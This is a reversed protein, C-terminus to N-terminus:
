DIPTKIYEQTEKSYRETLSSQVDRQLGLLKIDQSTSDMRPSGNRRVNITISHKAKEIGEILIERFNTKFIQLVNKINYSRKDIVYGEFDLTVDTVYNSKGLRIIKDWKKQDILQNEDIFKIDVLDKPNKTYKKLKYLYEILQIKCQVGNYDVTDNGFIINALSKSMHRQLIHTKGDDDKYYEKFIFENVTREFCFCGIHLDLHLDTAMVEHEGQAIGNDGMIKSSNMRNDNFDLCMDDFIEKMKSIDSENLLIDIDDHPRNSEQGTKLYASLAGVLYYDIRSENLKSCLEQLRSYIIKHNETINKM